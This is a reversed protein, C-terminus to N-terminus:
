KWTGVRHLHRHNMIDSRGVSCQLYHVEAEKNHFHKGQRGVRRTLKLGSTGERMDADQGQVVSETHSQTGEGPFYLSFKNVSLSQYVIM